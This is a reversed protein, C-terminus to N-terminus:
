PMLWLLSSATIWEKSFNNEIEYLMHQSPDNQTHAWGILSTTVNYRRRENTSGIGLIIVTRIIHPAIDIVLSMQQGM